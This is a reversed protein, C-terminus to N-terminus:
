ENFDGKVAKIITVILALVTVSWLPCTVWWWSWDIVDTLKLIMFVIFLIAPFGIKM